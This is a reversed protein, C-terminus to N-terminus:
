ACVGSLVSLVCLKIPMIQNAASLTGDPSTSKKWPMWTAIVSASIVFTTWTMICSLVVVVCYLLVIVCAM